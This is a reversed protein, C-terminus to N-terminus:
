GADEGGLFHRTLRDPDFGASLYLPRLGLGRFLATLSDRRTALAAEIRDVLGQRLWLFRRADSESDALEIWGGDRGAALEAPDWLVLPVVFHEALSALVRRAFGLDFHFDSVLLVLARRRGLYRRAELLGDAGRGELSLTRLAGAVRAGHDRSVMAPWSHSERVRTDAAVFGFPDGVRWASQAASQALDAVTQQRAGAAGCAMSASVDAVVYVPVAVRESMTRALWQEFPDTASRRLDIRRPDGRAILPRLGLYVGSSGEARASHSGPRIGLPRGPARYHFEGVM